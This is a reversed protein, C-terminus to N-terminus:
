AGRACCRKCHANQAIELSDTFVFQGSFDHALWAQLEEPSEHCVYINGMGPGNGAIVRTSWGNETQNCVVIVTEGNCHARGVAYYRAMDDNADEMGQTLQKNAERDQTLNTIM